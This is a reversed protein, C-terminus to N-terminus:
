RTAGLYGGMHAAMGEEDPLVMTRSDEDSWPSPEGIRDFLEDACPRCTTWRKAVEVDIGRADTAETTFVVRQGSLEQECGDCTFSM